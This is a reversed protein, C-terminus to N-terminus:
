KEDETKNREIINKNEVTLDIDNEDCTKITAENQLKNIHLRMIDTSFQSIKYM